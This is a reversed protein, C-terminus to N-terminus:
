RSLRRTVWDSGKQRSRKRKAQYEQSSIREGSAKDYHDSKNAITNTAARGRITHRNGEVDTISRVLKGGRKKAEADKEKKMQDAHNQSIQKYNPSAQSNLASRRQNQTHNGIIQKSAHPARIQIGGVNDIMKRQKPSKQLDEPYIYRNGEKRIYKHNSWQRDAM